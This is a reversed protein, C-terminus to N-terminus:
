SLGSVDEQRERSSSRGGAAPNKLLNPQIASADPPTPIQIKPVVRHKPTDVNGGSDYRLNTLLSPNFPSAEQKVVVTACTPKSPKSPTPPWGSGTESDNDSDTSDSVSIANGSSGPGSTRTWSMANATDEGGAERKIKPKRTDDFLNEDDSSDVVQAGVSPEDNDDGGDSIEIANETSSGPKGDERTWAMVNSNGAPLPPSPTEISRSSPAGRRSPRPYWSAVDDKSQLKPRTLEHGLIISLWSRVVYIHSPEDDGCQNM